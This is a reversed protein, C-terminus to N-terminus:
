TTRTNLPTSGFVDKFVRVCEWRSERFSRVQPTWGAESGGGAGRDCPGLLDLVMAFYQGEQGYRRLRIEPRWTGIRPPGSLERVTSSCGLCESVSM